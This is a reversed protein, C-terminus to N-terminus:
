ADLELIEEFKALKVGLLNAAKVYSLDNAQVARRVLDVLPTSLNAILQELRERRSLEKPPLRPPNDKMEQWERAYESHIERYTNNDILDLRHLRYAIMARSVCRRNALRQIQKRINDFGDRPEFHQQLLDQPTLFEAAVDNCFAEIAKDQMSGRASPTPRGSIGTNGLCVHVLEHLLTFSRAGPVDRSNVVIFPAFDDAIAFGRFVEVPIPTARTGADGALFVFVGIDETRRRLEKFLQTPSKLPQWFEEMDNVRLTRQLKKASTTVTDSQTLTGSIGLPKIREYDALLSRVQRHRSWFTRLLGDLRGRLIPSPEQHGYVKRFDHGQAGQKPPSKAYLITQPRFYATALKELESQTPRQEGAEFARLKRISDQEKKSLKVQRAAEAVSFGAEERAWSLMKPNPNTKTM